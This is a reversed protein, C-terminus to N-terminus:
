SDIEGADIESAYLTSGDGPDWAVVLGKEVLRNLATYLGNRSRGTRACITACDLAAVPRLVRLIAAELTERDARM